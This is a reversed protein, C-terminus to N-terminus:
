TRRRAHILAVVQLILITAILEMAEEARGAFSGLRDSIEIGLPALKRGLGDITKALFILALGLVLLWEQARLRRLRRIFRPMNRALLRLGAWTLLGVIAGGILKELIPADGSYLRLQLIGETTYAKDMDLERMTAAWLLVAIHWSRWRRQLVIDVSVWLASTGLFIASMGEIPGGEAFLAHTDNTVVLGALLVLLTIASSIAFITSPRPIGSRRYGPM